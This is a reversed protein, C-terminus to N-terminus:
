KKSAKKAAKALATAQTASSKVASASSKAKLATDGASAVKNKPVVSTNKLTRPTITSCKAQFENNLQNLEAVKKLSARKVVATKSKGLAVKEVRGVTGEQKLADIRASLSVCAPDVKSTKAISATTLNAGGFVSDNACGAMALTTLLAFAPVCINARM